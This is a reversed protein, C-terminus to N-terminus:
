EGDKGGNWTTAVPPHNDNHMHELRSTQKELINIRALISASERHRREMTPPDMMSSIVNLRQANTEITTQQKDTRGDLVRLRKEIDILQVVLSRIQQKAVAAAGAVSFLIGGITIVLKIDSAGDM